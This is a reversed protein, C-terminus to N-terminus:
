LNLAFPRPAEQILCLKRTIYCTQGNARVNVPVIALALNTKGQRPSSRAHTHSEAHHSSAGTDLNAQQEAFNEKVPRMFSQHLSKSHRADKWVVYLVREESVQLMDVILVPSAFSKEGSFRYGRKGRCLKSGPVPM